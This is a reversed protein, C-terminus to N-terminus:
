ASDRCKQCLTEGRTVFTIKDQIQACDKCFPFQDAHDWYMKKMTLKVAELEMGSSVHIGALENKRKGLQEFCKKFEEGTFQM